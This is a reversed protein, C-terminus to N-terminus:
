VENQLLLCQVFPIGKIKIINENKIIGLKMVLAVSEEGVANIIYARKCKEMAKESNMKEGKYFDAGLDLVLGKESYKKGIIEDDCVSVIMGSKANHSKVIM